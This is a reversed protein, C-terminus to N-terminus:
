LINLKRYITLISFGIIKIITKFKRIVNENTNISRFEKEYYM